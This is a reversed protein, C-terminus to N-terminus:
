KKVTDWDELIMGLRLSHQALIEKIENLSKKGLNPTKLLEIETKQVLDGVYDIKEAKLCNASRVTLELDDISRLLVPDITIEEEKEEVPPEEKIDVFAAIQQHLITAAQNVVEQPDITGNSEIDLILKDLNTQQALRATEVRYAVKSIPSYLVDLKLTGVSTTEENNKGIAQAYGTGKKVQCILSFPKDATLTAIEQDLNVIEINHPVEFDAATIVGKKNASINLTASDGETMRINLSRLNLIIDTVDELVGEITDYEHQVGEIECETVAAGEISSLLIRRLANGLTHGFGRALPELVIQSRNGEKKVVVSKPQLVETIAM